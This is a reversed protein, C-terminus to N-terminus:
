ESVLPLTFWCRAGQNPHSDIGIAGQHTEITQACSFLGMGMGTMRRATTSREYPRQFLRDCQEGTLGIGDDTVDCRLMLRNEATTIIQASLTVHTGPPNHQFANTIINNLVNQILQCDVEVVYTQNPIQNDITGHNVKAIPALSPLVMQTLAYFDISQIVLPPSSETAETYEHLLGQILGVQRQTSDLMTNLVTKPLTISDGSQETLRHLTLLMGLSPTRLDHNMAHILRDRIQNADILEAMNQRLQQTNDSVQQEMAKAYTQLEQYMLGQRLAFEIRDVLQQVLEIEAPQWQRPASCQHIALLGFHVQDSLLSMNLSAKVQYRAYYDQLFPFLEEKAINHRVQLRQATYLQQMQSVFAPPIAEDVASPWAALVSEATIIARGRDDIQYISVRDAQLLQQVEEVTQQLIEAINTSNRIRQTIENLLQECVTPECVTPEQSRRGAAPLLPRGLSSSGSSIMSEQLAAGIILTIAVVIACWGQFTTLGISLNGSKELFVGRGQMTYWTALVVFALGSFVGGRHGFRAIAWALAFFPLYELWPLTPHQHNLAILAILGLACSWLLVAWPEGLRLRRLQRPHIAAKFGAWSLPQGRNLLLLAPAVVLIGLSDSRWLSWWYERVDPLRLVKGLVSGITSITAHLSTPLLTGLVIFLVVDRRRDLQPRVQLTRLFWDALGAMVGMGLISSIMAEIPLGQIKGRWLVSLMIGVLAPRGYLWVLGIALGALPNIPLTDTGIRLQSFALRDLGYGAIASGIAIILNQGLMRSLPARSRWSDTDGTDIKEIVPFLRM